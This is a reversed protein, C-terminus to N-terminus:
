EFGRYTIEKKSHYNILSQRVLTDLLLPWDYGMSSALVPYHSQLTMGPITNIENFYVRKCDLDYFFDVRAFGSVGVEKAITVALKQIRNLLNIQFNAPVKIHSPGKSFYKQHYTLFSNDSKDTAVIEGPFSAMLTGDNEIIACELEIYNTLLPELLACSSYTWVTKLAELLTDSNLTKIASVGVSSGGDVPKVIVKDGLAARVELYTGKVLKSKDKNILYSDLTPVNLKNLVRKTTEKNMALASAKIGSGMLPLNALKIVGQIKGDEGNNGHTLPFCSTIPLKSNKYYLGDGMRVTVEDEKKFSSDLSQPKSKFDVKKLSWRGDYDVGIAIVEYNAKQLQYGVNAASRCSVSHETSKGGYLLAITGKSEM